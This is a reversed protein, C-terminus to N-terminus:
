CNGCQITYIHKAGHANDRSSREWDEVTQEFNRKLMLFEEESIDNFTEVKIRVIQHTILVKHNKKTKM